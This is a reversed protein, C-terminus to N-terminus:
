EEGFYFVSYVFDYYFCVVDGVLIDGVWVVFVGVVYIKGYVM